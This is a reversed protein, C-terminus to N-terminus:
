IVHDTNREVLLTIYGKMVRQLNYVAKRWGSATTASVEILVPVSSTSKEVVLKGNRRFYQYLYLVMHGSINTPIINPPNTVKGIKQLNAFKLKASRPVAIDAHTPNHVAAAAHLALDAFDGHASYKASKLKVSRGSMRWIALNFEGGINGAMRYHWVRYMSPHSYPHGQM